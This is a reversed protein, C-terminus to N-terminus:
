YKNDKLVQKLTNLMREPMVKAQKADDRMIWAGVRYARQDLMRAVDAYTLSYKKILARLEENTTM